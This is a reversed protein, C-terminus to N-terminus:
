IEGNPDKNYEFTDGPTVDDSYYLYRGDPSFAPEGSDKQETRRKTMQLGDGGSRHYLWMEGAGASRASTFHKRGVLYEGDPTWEPQNLLRFSEKSVQRHNSGDRDMIWLNDGGGEDSTFAISKGDPSYRPQMQWAVDHTLAKAEGGAIPIAYLDGLLDFVIENGDPSVDLSMWTGTRVDIAVEESPGPPANVDWKPEEEKKETADAAEAEAPAPEPAPTPSPVPHPHPHQRPSPVARSPAAAAPPAPALLAVLTALAVLALLPRLLRSLQTM